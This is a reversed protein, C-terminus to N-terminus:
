TRFTAFGAPDTVPSATFKKITGEISACGAETVIILPVDVCSDTVASPLGGNEQCHYRPTDPSMDFGTAPAVCSVNAVGARVM